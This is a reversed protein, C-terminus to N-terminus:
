RKPISFSCQPVLISKCLLLKGQIFSLLKLKFKLFLSSNVLFVYDRLSCDYEGDPSFSEGMYPGTDMPLSSKKSQKEFAFFRDHVLAYRRISPYVHNALFRQDEGLAASYDSALEWFDRVKVQHNTLGWLGGLIPTQHFPHDRVFHFPQGSVLWSDLAALDRTCFRSDADRFILHCVSPDGIAYYRWFMGNPHWHSEEKIVECGLTTLQEILSESLNIACYVRVKWGPLHRSIYRANEIMGRLYKEDTGYLSFSVTNM